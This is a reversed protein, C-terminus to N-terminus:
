RDPGDPAAPGPPRAGGPPSPGSTPGRGRRRLLQRVRVHEEREREDLVREIEDIESELDPIIRQELTNLQRTTRRLARALSRLLMERSAAELLVDILVEFRSAAEAAEPGTASPATGRAELSRRPPDHESLEAAALGWIEVPLLRVRLPRTPWGAAELDADPRAAHAELLSAYARSAEDAVRSRADVAPRALRFLESVLAARKRSLLDRGREVRELRRRARILEFRTAPRGSGGNM